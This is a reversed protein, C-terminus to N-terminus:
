AQCLREDIAEYTVAVHTNLTMARGIVGVTGEMGDYTVQQPGCPDLV